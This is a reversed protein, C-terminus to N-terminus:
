SATLAFDQPCLIMRGTVFAVGEGRGDYAPAFSRSGESGSLPEPPRDTRLKVFAEAKQIARDAAREAIKSFQMRNVAQAVKFSWDNFTHDAGCPAKPSGRRPEFALAHM